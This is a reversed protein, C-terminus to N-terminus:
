PHTAGPLKASIAQALIGPPYWPRNAPVTTLDVVTFNAQKLADRWQGPTLMNPVAEMEAQM